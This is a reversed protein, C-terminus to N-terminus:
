RGCLALVPAEGHSDLEDRGVAGVVAGRRLVSVRDCLVAEEIDSTILLCSGGDRLFDNILQYIELKAAVDVGRTPEDLVLVSVGSLLWKGFVVKQQNGGSLNRVPGDLRAARISMSDQIRRASQRESRKSIFFHRCLSKLAAVTVNAQVSMDLILGQTKRDEPVLGIGARVADGPNRLRLRRGALRVQGRVIRRAGGLCEALEAQGSGTLGTIGLVEGKNLTLDVSELVSGDSLGRAELMSTDDACGGLRLVNQQGAGTEAGNAGPFLAMGGLMLRIVEHRTIEARPHNGVIRGNRMIVLRDCIDELEDMRHSIYIVALGDDRLGQVVRLLRMVEPRSLTATPEDLILVKAEQSLAKAIEVAQREGVTLTEVLRRPDIDFDLRALHERATARMQRWSVWARRNRPYSGLCINEAVPLGPVLNLEQYVTAVGARQAQLPTAFEVPSGLMCLHGQDPHEAGALMRVLTSKGAGNQGVLGTVTGGQFSVHVDDVALTGPYLKTLGRAELMPPSPENEVDATQLGLAPM